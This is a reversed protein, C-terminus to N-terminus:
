VDENRANLNPQQEPIAIQPLIVEPYPGQVIIDGNEARDQNDNESQPKSSSNADTNEKNAQDNEKFINDIKYLKVQTEECVAPVGSIVEITNKGTSQVKQRYRPQIFKMYIFFLAGAGLVLSFWVAALAIVVIIAVHLKSKEAPSGKYDKAYITIGACSLYYFPHMQLHIETNEGLIIGTVNGTYGRGVETVLEYTNSDTHYKYIGVYTQYYVYHFEVTVNYQSSSSSTTNIYTRYQCTKGPSVIGTTINHTQGSQSVVFDEDTDGCDYTEKPCLM